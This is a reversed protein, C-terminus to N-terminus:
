TRLNSNDETMLFDGTELLLKFSGTGPAYEKWFIALKDTITGTYGLSNLYSDWRDNLSGVTFGKNTLWSFMLDNLTNGSAGDSIYMDREMDQIEESFGLSILKASKDDQLTGM